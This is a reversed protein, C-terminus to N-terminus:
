DVGWESLVRAASESFEEDALLARLSEISRPTRANDAVAGFANWRLNCEKEQDHLIKNIESNVAINDM